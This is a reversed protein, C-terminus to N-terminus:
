EIKDQLAISSVADLHLNENFGKRTLGDGKLYLGRIGNFIHLCFNLILFSNRWILLTKNECSFLKLITSSKRVVINLLFRCKM